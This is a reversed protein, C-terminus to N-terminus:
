PRIPKNKLDIGIITETYPGFSLSMRNPIVITGSKGRKDSYSPLEEIYKFSIGHSSIRKILVREINKLEHYMIFFHVSFDSMYYNDNAENEAIQKDMKQADKKLMAILGDYQGKYGDKKADEEFAKIDRVFDEYILGLQDHSYIVREGSAELYGIEVSGLEGNNVFSRSIIDIKEGAGISVDRGRSNNISGFITYDYLETHPNHYNTPIQSPESDTNSDNSNSVIKRSPQKEDETDLPQLDTNSDLYGSNGKDTVVVEATTNTGTGAGGGTEDEPTMGSPDTFRVPNNFGYNYSSWSAMMEGMPDIASWRAISADYWRAGYDYWGLDLDKVLEKGNYLHKYGATMPTLPAEMEMGFPYYHTKQTIENLPDIKGNEDIDEFVVRTNGLNDRLIYEQHFTKGDDTTYFRGDSHYIFLWGDM